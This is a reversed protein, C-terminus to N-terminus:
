APDGRYARAEFNSRDIQAELEANRDLLKQLAAETVQFITDVSPANPTDMAGPIMHRLRVYAKSITREADRFDTLKEGLALVANIAEQAEQTMAEGIRNAIRATVAEAPSGPRLNFEVVAKQWEEAVINRFINM